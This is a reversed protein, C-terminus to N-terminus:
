QFINGTRSSDAFDRIQIIRQDDSLREAYVSAEERGNGSIDASTALSLGTYDTTLYAINKIWTGTVAYRAQLLTANSATDNALVLWGPDDATGDSNGDKVAAIDTATWDSNLYKANDVLLGDSLQRTQVLIKGTATEVSLVGLLPTQGARSASTAAIPTYNLNLFSRTAIKAGNSLNRVQVLIKGTVKNVAMVGISADNPNGDGDTDNFVVVDVPAWDANLFNIKDVTTGTTSNRIHVLMKGTAPEALLMAVAPDDAVGDGNSDDVTDIAVAQWNPNLFNLTGFNDGNAGSYLQGQPQGGSNSVFTALDPVGDGSSDALGSIGALDTFPDSAVEIRQVDGIITDSEDLIQVFQTSLSTLQAPPTRPLGPGSFLNLEEPGRMVFGLQAFGGPQSSMVGHIFNFGDEGPPTASFAFDDWIDISSFGDVDRTLENGGVTLTASIISGMHRYRNGLGGPSAAPLPANGDFEIRLVYPMGVTVGPLEPIFGGATVVTTISGHIDWAIISNRRYTWRSPFWGDEPGSTNTGTFWWCCADFPGSQSSIGMVPPTGVLTDYIYTASPTGTFIVSTGTFSILEEVQLLGDNSDDKYEAVWDGTTVTGGSPSAQSTGTATITTRPEPVQMALTATNLYTIQGIDDSVIGLNTITGALMSKDANFTWDITLSGTSNSGTVGTPSVNVIALSFEFGQPDRAPPCLPDGFIPVASSWIEFNITPNVADDDFRINRYEQTESVRCTTAVQQGSGPDFPFFTYTYEGTWVDTYGVYPTQARANVSICLFLAVACVQM